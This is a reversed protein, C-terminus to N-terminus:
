AKQNAVAEAMLTVIHRMIANSNIATIPAPDLHPVFCAIDGGVVDLGRTGISMQFLENISLGGAEPNAAAPADRLSLVDGDVSLLTLGSGIVRRIEEVTSDIGRKCTESLPILRYGAKRAFGDQAFSALPGNPGVQVTGKLDILGEEAGVRFGNGARWTLGFAPEGTDTHSGFHIM